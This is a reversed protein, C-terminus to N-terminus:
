QKILRFINWGSYQDTKAHRENKYTFVKILCSPSNTEKQFDMQILHPRIKLVAEKQNNLPKLKIKVYKNKSVFSSKSIGIKYTEDNQSIYSVESNNISIFRLNTTEPNDAAWKGSATKPCGSQLWEEDNWGLSYSPSIFFSLLGAFIFLLTIFLNLIHNRGKYFYKQKSM